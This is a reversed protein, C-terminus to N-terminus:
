CLYCFGRTFPQGNGKAGGGLAWGYTHWQLTNASIHFYSLFYRLLHNYFPDAFKDRIIISNAPGFENFSNIIFGMWLSNWNLYLGNSRYPSSFLGIAHPLAARTTTILTDISANAGASDWQLRGFVEKSWMNHLKISITYQVQRELMQKCNFEYSNHYKIHDWLHQKNKTSRVRSLDTTRYLVLLVKNQLTLSLITM